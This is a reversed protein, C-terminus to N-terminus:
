FGNGPFSQHLCLLSFLSLAHAHQIIQLTQLYAIASYKLATVLRTNIDIFGIELRFGLRYDGMITVAPSLLPQIPLQMPDQDNYRWVVFIPCIGAFISENLSSVFVMWSISAPIYAM